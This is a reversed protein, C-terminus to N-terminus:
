TVKTGPVRPHLKFLLVIYDNMLDVRHDLPCLMEVQDAQHTTALVLRGMSPCAQVPSDNDPQEDQADEVYSARIRSQGRNYREYFM